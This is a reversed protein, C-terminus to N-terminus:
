YGLEKGTHKKKKKEREKGISIKTVTVSRSVDLNTKEYADCRTLM